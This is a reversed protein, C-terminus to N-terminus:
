ACDTGHCGYQTREGTGHGWLRRQALGMVPGDLRDASYSADLPVYTAGSKLAARISVYMELSRNLLIGVRQGRGIGRSAPYRALQNARSELERYTM